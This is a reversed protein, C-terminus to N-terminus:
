ESADRHVDLVRRLRGVTAPTVRFYRGIENDNLGYGEMAQLALDPVPGLKEFILRHQRRTTAKHVSNRFSSPDPMQNLDVKASVTARYFSQRGQRSRWHFSSVMDARRTRSKVHM